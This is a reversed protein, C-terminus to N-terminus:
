HKRLHGEEIEDAGIIRQPPDRHHPDIGLHGVPDDAGLGLDDILRPEGDLRIRDVLVKSGEVEQIDRAPDARALEHVVRAQDRVQLGPWGVLGEGRDTGAGEEDAAGAVELAPPGGRMM